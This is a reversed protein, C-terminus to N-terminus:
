AVNEFMVDDEDGDGPSEADTGEGEAKPAVEDKVHDGAASTKFEPRLEWKGVFDGSRHMVAVQAITERLYVDPQPIRAKIERLGWFRFESFLSILADILENQPM